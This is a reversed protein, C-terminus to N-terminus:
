VPDAHHPHHTTNDPVLHLPTSSAAHLPPQPLPAAHVFAWPPSSCFTCPTDTHRHPLPPPTDMRRRVRAPKHSAEQAEERQHM